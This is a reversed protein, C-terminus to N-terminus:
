LPSPFLFSSLPDTIKELSKALVVGFIPEFTKNTSSKASEPIVNFFLISQSSCM